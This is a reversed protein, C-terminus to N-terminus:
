ISFDPRIWGSKFADRINARTVVLYALHNSHRKKDSRLVCVLGSPKRSALKVTQEVLAM